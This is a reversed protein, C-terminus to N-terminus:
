VIRGVYHCWRGVFAKMWDSCLVVDNEMSGHDTLNRLAPRTEVTLTTLKPMSLKDWCWGKRELQLLDRDLTCSKLNVMLMNTFLETPPMLLTRRCFALM